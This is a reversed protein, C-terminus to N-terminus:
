RNPWVIGCWWKWNWLGCDSPYSDPGILGPGAPWARIVPRIFASLISVWSTISRWITITRIFSRFFCSTSTPTNKLVPSFRRTNFGRRTQARPLRPNPNFTAMDAMDAALNMARLSEELPLTRLSSSFAASFTKLLTRGVRRSRVGQVSRAKPKM